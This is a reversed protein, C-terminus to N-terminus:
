PQQELVREALGKLLASTKDHGEASVGAAPRYRVGHMDLGTYEAAYAKVLASLVIMGVNPGFTSETDACKLGEPNHLGAVMWRSEGLEELTVGLETFPKRVLALPHDQDMKAGGGADIKLPYICVKLVREDNEGLSETSFDMDFLGDLYEGQPTNGLSTIDM